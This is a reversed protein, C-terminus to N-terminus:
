PPRSRKIRRAAQLELLPTWAAAASCADLAAVNWCRGFRSMCTALCRHPAASFALPPEMREWRGEALACRATALCVLARLRFALSRSYPPCSAPICTDLSFPVDYSGDAMCKASVLKGGAPFGRTRIPEPESTVSVYTPRALTSCPPLHLYRPASTPLIGVHRFLPPRHKRTARHLSLAQELISM